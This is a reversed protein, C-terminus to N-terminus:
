SRHEIDDNPQLCILYFNAVIISFLTLSLWGNDALYYVNSVYKHAMSYIIISQMSLTIGKRRNGVAASRRDPVTIETANSSRAVLDFIFSFVEIIEIPIKSKNKIKNQKTDNRRRLGFLFFVFNSGGRENEPRAKLAQKLCNWYM